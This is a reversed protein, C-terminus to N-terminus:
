NYLINSEIQNSKHNSNIWGKVEGKMTVFCCYRSVPIRTFVKKIQEFATLLSLLTYVVEDRKLSHTLEDLKCAYKEFTIIEEQKDGM